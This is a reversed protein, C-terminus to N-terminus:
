KGINNVLSLTKRSVYLECDTYINIGDLKIKEGNVYGINKNYPLRLQNDGKIDVLEHEEEELKCGKKLFEDKARVFLEDTLTALDFGCVKQIYTSIDVNDHVGHLVEGKPHYCCMFVDEGTHGQTTWAVGIRKSIVRNIRTGRNMGTDKKIYEEEQWTLDQIGMEEELVLRLNSLDKNLRKMVRKTCTRVKDMTNTLMKLNHNKYSNGLTDEGISLGGNGHDPCVIVVTDERSKAFDLAVRVADDFALVEKIVESTDNYHSAWDIKSGEVMLFFGKKNRSLVDLSKKTMESLTPMSADDIPIEVPAFAGWLKDSTSSLMSKKDTVFHYGMDVIEDKLVRGDRRNYKEDGCFYWQSGGGLFVDIGSYVQQESITDRQKRNNVHSSFCAPTADSLNSTCVIGVSKGQRDAAESLTAVPRKYKCGSDDCVPIVGVCGINTKNGTSFATASASSDTITGDTWHTKVLGTVIEDMALRNSPAFWRSLTIHSVSTGDPIMLIVNRIDSVSVVWVNAILVFLVVLVLGYSVRRSKM